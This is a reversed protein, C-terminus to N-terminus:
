RRTVNKLLEDNYKRLDKMTEINCELISLDVKLLALTLPFVSEDYQNTISQMTSQIYNELGKSFKSVYKQLKLVKKKDKLKKLTKERNNMYIIAKQKQISLLLLENPDTIERGQCKVELEKIFEKMQQKLINLTETHVRMIEELGDHLITLTIINAM